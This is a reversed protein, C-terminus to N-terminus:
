YALEKDKLFEALLARASNDRIADENLRLFDYGLEKIAVEKKADRELRNEGFFTNEAHWGRGDVEIVKNGIKFDVFTSPMIKVEEEIGTVGLEDLWGSVKLVISSPHNRRWKALIDGAYEPGYKSVLAEYGSRGARRLSEKKVHSRAMKQHASTLHKGAHEKQNHRDPLHKEAKRKLKYYEQGIKYGLSDDSLNKVGPWSMDGLMFEKGSAKAHRFAAYDWSHMAAFNGGNPWDSKPVGKNILYDEFNLAYRNVRAIDRSEPDAFDFDFGMRAWAYRGVRSNATLWIQKAGLKRYLAESKELFASGMGQRQYYGEIEFEVHDVNGNIFSRDITGVTDSPEYGLLQKRAELIVDSPDYDSLTVTLSISGGPMPYSVIKVAPTLGHAEFDSILEELEENTPKRLFGNAQWDQDTDNRFTVAGSGPRGHKKQNHRTPLHKAIGNGFIIFEREFENGFGTVKSVSFIRDAPVDKTIVSGEYQKSGYIEGSAFQEATSLSSTWSSLPLAYNKQPIGRHLRLSSLGSKKLEYQSLSYIENVVGDVASEFDTPMVGKTKGGDMYISRASKDIIDRVAKEAATRNAAVDQMGFRMAVRSMFYRSVDNEADGAWFASLSFVFEPRVGISGAIQEAALRQSAMGVFLNDEWQEQRQVSVDEHTEKGHKKQNHQTPLHKESFKAPTIARYVGDGIKEFRTGRPLIVEQESTAAFIARSGADLKIEVIRKGFQEAARRNVSTSVFAKDVYNDSLNVFSHRYLTINLPSISGSISFAYDLADVVKQEDPALARGNKLKTNIWQAAFIYSSLAADIGPINRLYEFFEDSEPIIDKPLIVTAREYKQSNSIQAYQAWGVNAYEKGNSSGHTKQNHRAPLHKEEM